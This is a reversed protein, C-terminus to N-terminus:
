NITTRLTPFYITLPTLLTKLQPETGEKFRVDLVPGIIRILSGTRDKETM